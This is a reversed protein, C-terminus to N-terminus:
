RYKLPQRLMILHLLYKIHVKLYSWIPIIWRRKITALFGLAQQYWMGLLGRLNTHSDSGRKSDPGTSNIAGIAPTAPRRQGLADYLLTAIPTGAGILPSSASPTFNFNDLATENNYPSPPQNVFKPDLRNCSEGPQPSPCWGTRINYYLNHDRVSWGNLPPMNTSTINSNSADVTQLYFAVPLNYNGSGDKEYGLIVNNQYIATTDECHSWTDDCMMDFPLGPSFMSNNQFIYTGQNDFKIPITDGGGRCLSYGAGPPGGGPALASAPEDGYLEGPRWCNGGAFNNQFVVHQASGIKYAQGENAYSSSNTITLKNMGSHLLDLGDQFNARWIDNDFVWDGVTSATGFGDAYGGTNADVCEIYPYNHTIPYEELCGVFETISNTLTLGGAVSINSLGGWPTDDMDIGAGPVGQIHIHDAVVGVGTAGRIGENNTGHIFLDTYNVSATLASQLLGFKVGKDTGDACAHAYLGCSSRDSVEFCAVDVFQSDTTNFVTDAYWSGDLRTKATDSRCSAYNEGLIRTHRAATGSPISPMSCTYPNGRCGQPSWNGSSPPASDLSTMYGDAKQRVIVTDGGAIRWRLQFPTQEDSWLYRINGVACPQNVGRGPYDADHKGDCQGAPTVSSSVFPTGGGPRVYWTTTGTGGAVIALDVSNGPATWGKSSSNTWVADGARGCTITVAGTALATVLGQRDVTAKTPDSSSWTCTAQMPFGGRTDGGHTITFGAGVTVTSGVVVNLPLYTGLSDQFESPSPTMYQTWNDGPFQGYVGARDTQGGASAVVWSTEYLNTYAIGTGPFSTSLWKVLGNGDVSVDAPRGTTWKVGGAGACSDSSGDTYGCTASFQQTSGSQVVAGRPFISVSSVTKGYLFSPFIFLALGILRKMNGELAAQYDV